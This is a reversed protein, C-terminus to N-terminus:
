EGPPRPSPSPPSSPGPSAAPAATEQQHFMWWTFGLRQAGANQIPSAVGLSGDKLFAVTLYEGGPDNFPPGDKERPRASELTWPAASMRRLTRAEGVAFTALNARLDTFDPNSATFWTAALEGDGRAILYPFFAQAPSAGVEFTEWSAGADTSRALHLGRKDTWLSYLRGRADWALPEVWRPTFGAADPIPTWDREGPASRKAWTRGGDRSVAVLDVGATFQNYSAAAPTVRVAVEGHPGVALHSSGGQDYVDPMVTWTRGRDTSVRHKVGSGDNWIVHATGDPAVGVWPRDDFRNRSLSTWRWTAGTDHSVGIAIGLGEFTKRDFSMVVYYLAGDAAVALDVDSNGVAGASEPGVDVRRWSAGRDASTWLTPQPSGYGALFLTGSPHEAIMPERAAVDVHDVRQEAVLVTEALAGSGLAGVLLAGAALASRVM